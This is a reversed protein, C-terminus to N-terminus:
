QLLYDISFGTFSPRQSSILPALGVAQALLDLLLRRRKEQIVKPKGPIGGLKGAREVADQLDGVEDVLGLAVAQRGSFIRGDALAEVKERAMRRSKAVAEIFQSHVDDLVGQLIRREADTPERIASALDKHEGSKIVVAKVGIKQMLGSINPIQMIVGISGTISGPNAMIQDAASAIYYGGSAAVSGMSAVVPKGSERLKLLGKYIEQSAAVAGGPSNIRVVIAKVSPNLRHRELQEIVEKSDVIVGEITVLAVKESGLLPWKSLFFAAIVLLLFLSSAIGSLILWAKLFSRTGM